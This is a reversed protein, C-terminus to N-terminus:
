DERFLTADVPIGRCRLEEYFKPLFGTPVFRGNVKGEKSFGEQKFRFIDQLAIIESEMGTVETIYSIKRTGDPFRSQQVIIQIASAIQERIARVPLDMGAMLVMTELRALADRPSNAHLTTLSGDHGTNMAQLMDLAEGSRCEGVVIRDPRMRLCNKVLDRITIGGKGELNPPRTELQIWHAQPLRLEAADEVTVIREDEPIFSSIVNLTTTKGSGTGGSIVINKKERVCIELFKAMKLTLTSFGVLDSVRLGERKFKRITLCPGRLALPPIIANVRSGDSLRADVLPSSEDIRRGIPAVIREIVGLVSRNSSFSKQSLVIKGAREIFIQDARNVMIESVQDDKLLEELPGLGLAENILDSVLATRDFNAPLREKRELDALIDRISHEVRLRLSEGGLQELDLRRLDLHQILREHIRESLRGEGVRAQISASETPHAAPEPPSVTVEVTMRYDGVKLVDAREIAVPETVKQGNVFTGNTSSLDVAIAKANVIKLRAHFKSIESGSLVLDNEAMRGISIEAKDFLLTREEGGGGAVVMSVM